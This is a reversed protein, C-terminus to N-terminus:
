SLKFNVKPFQSDGIGGGGLRSIPVFTPFQNDCFGGRGGSNPVQTKLAKPGESVLREGDDTLNRTIYKAVNISWKREHVSLKHRKVGYYKHM